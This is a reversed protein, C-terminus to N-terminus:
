IEGNITWTQLYSRNNVERAYTQVSEGIYKIRTKTKAWDKKQLKMAHSVLKIECYKCM